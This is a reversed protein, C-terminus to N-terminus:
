DYDLFFIEAILLLPMDCVFYYIDLGNMYNNLRFNASPYTDVYPKRSFSKM